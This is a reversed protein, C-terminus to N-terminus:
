TGPEAVHRREINEHRHHIFRGRFNSDEASTCGTSPGVRYNHGLGDIILIAAYPGSQPDSLINNWITTHVSQVKFGLQVHERNRIVAVAAVDPYVM